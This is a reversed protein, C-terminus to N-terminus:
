RGTVNRPRTFTTCLAFRIEQLWIGDGMKVDLIAKLQFKSRKIFPDGAYRPKRGLDPMKGAASRAGAGDPRPMMFPLSLMAWLHVAAIAPFNKQGCHPAKDSRCPAPPSRARSKEATGPTMARHRHAPPDARCCGKMTAGAGAHGGTRSAATETWLRSRGGSNAVLTCFIRAAPEPM